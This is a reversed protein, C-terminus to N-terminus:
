RKHDRIALSVNKLYVDLRRNSHQIENFYAASGFGFRYETLNVSTNIVSTTFM